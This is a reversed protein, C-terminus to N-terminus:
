IGVEKEYNKGEELFLKGLAVITQKSLSMEKFGEWTGNIPNYIEQIITVGIKCDTWYMRATNNSFIMHM